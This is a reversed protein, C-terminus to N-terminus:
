AFMGSTHLLFPVAVVHPTLPPYSDFPRSVRRVSYLGIGGCTPRYVGDICSLKLADMSCVFFERLETDGTAHLTQLLGPQVNCEM